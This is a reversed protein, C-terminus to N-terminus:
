QIGGGPRAAPEFLRLEAITWGLDERTETQVIRFHRARVGDPWLEQGAGAQGAILARLFAIKSYRFPVERWSRGDDSAELRYGTGFDQAAAGAHIEVKAIERDGGLDIAVSQGPRQPGGASWTTTMKGDAISRAWEPHVDVSITWPGAPIERLSSRTEAPAEGAGGGSGPGPAFALVLDDGLENSLANPRSFGYTFRRVLRLRPDTGALIRRVREGDPGGPLMKAHVIVTDVGLAALVDLSEGDPFSRVADRVLYTSAPIFGSYGNVLRKWHYTSLYLYISDDAIWDHFPYELVITRDPQAALWRYTPPVDRGVPVIIDDIPVSLSEINLVAALSLFVATRAAPKKLAAFLRAAGFGALVAVGFLVFVAFRAPERIGNFGLVHRYFFPFPMPVIMTTRGLFAFGIGFSLMMSWVTLLAYIFVNGAEKGAAGDRLHRIARSALLVVGILFLYLVPKVLGTVSLKLPGLRLGAGGLLSLAIALFNVAAAVILVAAFIRGARNAPAAASTTGRGGWVRRLGIGALVLAALGPLLYREPSGLGSLVKGLLVGTPFPALYNQLEAGLTLERQWGMARFASSYPLSFLVLVTGAAALPVALRVLFRVTPRRRRFLLFLPLGLALVALSFLGYYVCSLSQLTLFGAFLWADVSRERDAYRHLYYFLFPIGVSWLLQLHSIHMIKYPGFSFVLGALFGAASSGTLSRVLLWTGFGSLIFALLFAFNHGLVPNGTLLTVPAAALAPPLLHESFALANPYPHFINAQFLEAPRRFIQRGTWSMIWTNLLPDGADRIGSGPHFSLPATQLVALVAFVALIGLSITAKTRV